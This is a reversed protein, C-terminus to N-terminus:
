NEDGESMVETADTTTNTAQATRKAASKESIEKRKAARHHYYGLSFMAQDPLALTKPFGDILALIEELRKQAGAFAGARNKDNRLKGLHNQVGDLLIGFM